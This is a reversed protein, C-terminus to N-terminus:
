LGYSILLSLKHKKGLYILPTRNIDEDSINSFEYTGKLFLDHMYEYSCELGLRYDKRLPSYLFPLNVIEKYAYYIDELGGKRTWENYLKINLNKLPKYDFQFRFQDANQGLWHGM